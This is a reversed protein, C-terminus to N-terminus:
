VPISQSCYAEIDKIAAGVGDEKSLRVQVNSITQNIPL